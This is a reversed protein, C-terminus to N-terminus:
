LRDIHYSVLSYGGEGGRRYGVVDSGLLATCPQALPVLAGGRDPGTRKQQLTSRRLDQVTIHAVVQRRHVSCRARIHGSGEGRRKRQRGRDAVCENALEGDYESPNLCMYNQM